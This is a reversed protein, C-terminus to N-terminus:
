IGDYTQYYFRIVEWKSYDFIKSDWLTHEGQPGSHFYCHDTGDFLNLGDTVNRAAHSHVVDIIVFLGLGHAKNVLYKLDDPNGYCSSSAFFVPLMIASAETTHM